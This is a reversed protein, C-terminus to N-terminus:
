CVLFFAFFSWNEGSTVLAGLFGSVLDAVFLIGIICVDYSILSIGYVNM